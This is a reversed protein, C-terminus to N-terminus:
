WLCHMYLRLWYRNRNRTNKHGTCCSYKNSNSCLFFVSGIMTGTANLIECAMSFQTHKLLIFILFSVPLIFFSVCWRHVSAFAKKTCAHTLNGSFSKGKKKKKKTKHAHAHANYWVSVCETTMPSTSEHLSDFRRWKGVVYQIFNFIHKMSM